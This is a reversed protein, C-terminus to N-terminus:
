VAEAGQEGTRIRCIGPLEMVFLKGDGLKGTRATREVTELVLALDADEVAIDIRLKPVFAIQYEASRYIETHGHQRGFGIVETVTMGKIGIGDLATRVAELKFPKIIALVLKM